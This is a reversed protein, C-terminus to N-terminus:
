QDLGLELKFKVLYASVGKESAVERSFPMMGNQKIAEILRNVIKQKGRERLVSISEEIAKKRSGNLSIWFGSALEVVKWHNDEINWSPDKCVFLYLYPFEKKLVRLGIVRLSEHKGKYIYYIKRRRKM